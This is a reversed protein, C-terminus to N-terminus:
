MSFSLELNACQKICTLVQHMTLWWIEDSLNLLITFKVYYTAYSSNKQIIDLSRCTFRPKMFKPM